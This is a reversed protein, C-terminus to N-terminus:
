NLRTVGVAKDIGDVKIKYGGGSPFIIVKPMFSYHYLYWYETQQWIQGNMLKIITEGEFGKFKGDVKSEITGGPDAKETQHAVAQEIGKGVGAEFGTAYANILAMRLLEKQAETMKSAALTELQAKTLLKELTVEPYDKAQNVVSYLIAIIFFVTKRM